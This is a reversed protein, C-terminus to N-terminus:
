GNSIDGGIPTSPVWGRPLHGFNKCIDVAHEVILKHINNVSQHGDIHVWNRMSGEHDRMQTLFGRRVQEHFELTEDEFRNSEVQRARKLGVNPKVNLFYTIDPDIWDSAWNSIDSVITGTLGNAYVQYSITSAKFRDCIVVGNQDLVPRVVKEMHEARDAAFLLAEAKKSIPDRGRDLLLKRIEAGLESDGPERTLTNPVGFLKLADSLLEAQTSKGSGEGGEFVIFLPDKRM